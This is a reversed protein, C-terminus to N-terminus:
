RRAPRAHSRLELVRPDTSTQVCAFFVTGPITLGNGPHPARDRQSRARERGLLRDSYYRPDRAHPKRPSISARPPPSAACRRRRAVVLEGAVGMRGGPEPPPAGGRATAGGRG